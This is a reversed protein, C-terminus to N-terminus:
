LSPLARSITRTWGQNNSNIIESLKIVPIDPNLFGSVLSLNSDTRIIANTKALLHADILADLGRSYGLNGTSNPDIDHLPTGNESREQNRQIIRGKFATKMADLFAQEDTAIFFFIRPDLQALVSTVAEYPVRNSEKKLGEVKDTGRYHVGIVPQKNFHTNAFSEIENIVKNKLKLQHTLKHALSRELRMGLNVFCGNKRIALLEISAKRTKYESNYISTEFYHDWWGVPSLSPTYYTAQTFHLKLSCKLINAVYLAGLVQCYISFFGGKRDHLVLEGKRVSYHDAAVITARMRNKARLGFKSVLTNM